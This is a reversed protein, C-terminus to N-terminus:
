AGSTSVRSRPRMRCGNMSRIRRPIPRVPAAGDTEVAFVSIIQIEDFRRNYITYTHEAAWVTRATLGYPALERDVAASVAEGDQFFGSPIQWFRGGNFHRDAKSQSTRLVLFEGHPRRRFVWLDYVAPNFQV